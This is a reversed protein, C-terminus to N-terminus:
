AVVEGRVATLPRMHLGALEQFWAAHDSSLDAGRYLADGDQGRGVWPNPNLRKSKGMEHDGETGGCV